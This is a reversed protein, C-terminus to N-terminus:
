ENEMAKQLEALDEFAFSARIDSKEYDEHTTEGSFVLISAIGANTGLAIDTYLRDGVMALADATVGYKRMAMEAITRNPKGIVIDPRRGTSAEIFAMMAGIDPIFGGEVPCNFDPHTAIYPIGARVLNCIYTLKEYTLTQDFGLVFYEPDQKTLVFGAKEFEQELSPTGALYIHAGPARENLWLTTAEGSTFIDDPEVDIGFNSLRTVYRDRSRSSNNTLYVPRRSTRKLYDLFPLTCPFLHEGLYITGDMDLMFVRIDSLNHM